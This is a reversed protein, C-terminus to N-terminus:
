LGGRICFWLSSTCNWAGSSPRHTARFMKLKMYIHFLLIKICQQMKNSKRHLLYCSGCIKAQLPLLYYGFCTPATIYQLVFAMQQYHIEKHTFVLHASM